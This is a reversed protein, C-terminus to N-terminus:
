RQVGVTDTHAMILLPKKSGNGKLRAVLNARNSDLAFTQTAIGEDELVKKLYEVAKSENGPPNTTDIQILARFHRLIEAQQRGWDIAKPQAALTAATLVLFGFIRM